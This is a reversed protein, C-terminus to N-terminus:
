ALAADKVTSLGAANQIEYGHQALGEAIEKRDSDNLAMVEKGFQVATQGPKVGFFDRCASMFTMKKM